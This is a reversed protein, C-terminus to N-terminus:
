HGHKEKNKKNERAELFERRGDFWGDAYRLAERRKHQPWDPPRAPRDYKADDYGQQYHNITEGKQSTM